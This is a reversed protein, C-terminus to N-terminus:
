GVAAETETVAGDFMAWGAPPITDVWCAAGGVGGRAKAAMVLAAGVQRARQGHRRPQQHRLFCRLQPEHRYIWSLALPTPNTASSTSFPSSTSSSPSAAGYCHCPPLLAPPGAFESSAR